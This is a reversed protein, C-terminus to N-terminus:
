KKRRRAARAVGALGLGLLTLTAPEPVAATTSLQAEGTVYGASSLVGCPGSACTFTSSGFVATGANLFITAPVSNTVPTALDLDMYVAFSPGIFGFDYGSNFWAQEGAAGNEYHHNAASFTGTVTIDWSDVANLATNIVFFGVATNTGSTGSFNVDNLTWITNASAATAFGLMMAGLVLGRLTKM